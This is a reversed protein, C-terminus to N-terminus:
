IYIVVVLTHRSTVPIPGIMQTTGDSYYVIMMYTNPDYVINTIFKGPIVIATIQSVSAQKTIGNQVLPLQEDGTLAFAVPLETISKNAM